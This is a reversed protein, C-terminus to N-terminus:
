HPQTQLDRLTCECKAWNSQVTSFQGLREAPRCECQEPPLRAQARNGRASLTMMDYCSPSCCLSCSKRSKKHSIKHQKPRLRGRVNRPKKIIWVLTFRTIKYKMDVNRVWAQTWAHAVVSLWLVCRGVTCPGLFFSVTRTELGGKKLRATHLLELDTRAQPAPQSQQARVSRSSSPDRFPLWGLHFSSVRVSLKIESSFHFVLSAKRTQKIKADCGWLSVVHLNAELLSVAIRSRLRPM